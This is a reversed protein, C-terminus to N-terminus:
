DAPRLWFTAGGIGSEVRRYGAERAFGEIPVELGIRDVTHSAEYGTVIAAPRSEELYDTITSPSVFGVADRDAADIMDGTRYAFPGTAFMPDLALGSGVVTEPSLTAVEGEIGEAGLLAALARGEEAVVTPTPKDLAAGGLNYVPQVLGIALFLGVAPKLWHKDVFAGRDRAWALGLGVFLPPLLPIAYQRHIPTPALTAVLGALIALDTLLLAPIQAERAKLSRLRLLTYLVLALLAPGRVLTLLGDIAKMGLTLRHARGNAEYWLFPAEAHYHFNGYDFATPATERIWLMPVLALVVGASTVLTTAVARRKGMVGFIAALLPFAAFAGAMVAYSIKTGTAAGIALGALLWKYRRGPQAPDVAGMAVFFAFALLLAPLADNRVLTVGFLFAHCFWIAGAAMMAHHRAVGGERLAGYVLAIVGAGMLGSFLRAALLGHWEPDGFLPALVYLQYPTQLYLFDRFPSMGGAVLEAAALYQTEDHDIPSLLAILPLSAMLLVFLLAHPHARARAPTMRRVIDIM